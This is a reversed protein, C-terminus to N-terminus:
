SLNCFFDVIEKLEKEAAEKTNYKSFHIPNNNGKMFVEVIYENITWEGTNVNYDMDKEIHAGAFEDILICGNNGIMVM